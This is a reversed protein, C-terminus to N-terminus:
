KDFKRAGGARCGVTVRRNGPLVRFSGSSDPFITGVAPREEFGTRIRRAAVPLKMLKNTARRPNLAASADVTGTLPPTRICTQATGSPQRDFSAPTTEEVVDHLAVRKVIGNSAQVPHEVLDPGASHAFDRRAETPAPGRDVCGALGGSVLTHPPAGARGPRLAADAVVAAGVARM